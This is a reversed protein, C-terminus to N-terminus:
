RHRSGLCGLSWRCLRLDRGYIMEVCQAADLGGRGFQPWRDSRRKDLVPWHGGWPRYGGGGQFRAVAKSDYLRGEHVLRYHTASKFHLSDVFEKQAPENLLEIAGLVAGEDIDSMAVGLITPFDVSMATAKRIGPNPQASVSLCRLMRSVSPGLATTSSQDLPEGDGIAQEV